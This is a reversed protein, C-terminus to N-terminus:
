VQVSLWNCNLCFLQYSSIVTLIFRCSFGEGREWRVPLFLIPFGQMPWCHWLLSLAVDSLFWTSCVGRSSTSLRCFHSLSPCGELPWTGWQHWCGSVPQGHIAEPRWCPLPSPVARGSTSGLVAPSPISSTKVRGICVLGVSGLGHLEQWRYIQKLIWM